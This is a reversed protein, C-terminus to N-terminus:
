SIISELMPPLNGHLSRIFNNTWAVTIVFLRPFVGITWYDM